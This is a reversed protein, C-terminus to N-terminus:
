PATLSIAGNGWVTHRGLGAAEAAKLWPVFEGLDGEYEAFGIFGGLPHTEGTRSSTRRLSISRVSGAALRAHAAREGLGRYDLGAPAEGYFAALASVRDRARKLLVDFPPPVTNDDHGKLETPTLFDVRLRSCPAFAALDLSHDDATTELPQVRAGHISTLRRVAPSPDAALDFLHLDFSWSSGPSFHRGDLQRCRLVFPRPAAQFGSPAGPRPKPRFFDEDLLLGLAGRLVNGSHPPFAIADAARFRFRCVRWRFDATM